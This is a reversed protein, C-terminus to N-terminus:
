KLYYHAMFEKITIDRYISPNEESLLEKIPSYAKSTGESTEDNNIIFSAISIRPGIHSALVRHCVSIFKDNTMLQLVFCLFDVFVVRLFYGKSTDIIKSEKFRLEMILAKNTKDFSM